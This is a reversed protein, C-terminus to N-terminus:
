SEYRNGCYKCNTHTERRGSKVRDSINNKQEQKEHYQFRLKRKHGLHKSEPGKTGWREQGHWYKGVQSKM